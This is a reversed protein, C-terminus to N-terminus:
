ILSMRDGIEIWGIAFRDVFFTDLDFRDVSSM